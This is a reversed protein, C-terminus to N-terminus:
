QLDEILEIFDQEDIIQIKFGKDIFDLAKRHKESPKNDSLHVHAPMGIVLYNTTEMVRDRVNGGSDAVLKAADRRPKTLAGTFVFELGNLPGGPTGDTRFRNTSSEMKKLIAPWDSVITNTESLIRLLLRATIEADAVADHRKLTAVGYYNCLKDLGYGSRLHISNGRRAIRSSDVMECNFKPLRYKEAVQSLASRDFHTHHIVRQNNLKEAVTEFLEPYTPSGRVTSKDIGHLWTNSFHTEPDVYSGWTDVVDGGEVFALGIQCISSYEENATEVDLAIFDYM